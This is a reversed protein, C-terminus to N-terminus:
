VSLIKWQLQCKGGVLFSIQIANQSGAKGSIQVAEETDQELMMLSFSKSPLIFIIVVGVSRGNVGTM